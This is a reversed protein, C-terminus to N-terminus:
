SRSAYDSLGPLLMPEILRTLKPAGNGNREIHAQYAEVLPRGVREFDTENNELAGVAVEDIGPRRRHLVVLVRGGLRRLGSDISRDVSAPDPETGNPWTV